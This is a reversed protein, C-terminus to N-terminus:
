KINKPWIPKGNSYWFMINPKNKERNKNPIYDICKTVVVDKLEGNILENYKSVVIGKECNKNECYKCCEKIYMDIKEKM